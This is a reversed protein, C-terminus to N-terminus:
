SSSIHSLWANVFACSLQHMCYLKWTTKNSFIQAAAEFWGTQDLRVSACKALLRPTLHNMNGWRTRCTHILNLAHYADVTSLDAASGATGVVYDSPCESTLCGPASADCFLCFWKNREAGCWVALNATMCSFAALMVVPPHTFHTM